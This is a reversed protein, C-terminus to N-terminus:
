GSFDQSMSTYGVPANVYLSGGSYTGSTFLLGTWHVTVAYTHQNQLTISYSTDSLSGTYTLGTQQDVFQIESPTTGMGTTEVTGYVFVQASLVSISYSTSHSIGGSSATITVSYANTPTSDPVNLTLITSFDPASSSPDFNCNIGSSGSDSSLTVTQPNGSVGNIFVMTQISSGQLVTGSSDITSITFDFPNGIKISNGSFYIVAFSAVILVVIVIAAIAINRHLKNTPRNSLQAM